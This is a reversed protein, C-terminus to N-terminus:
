NNSNNEYVIERLKNVDHIVSLTDMSLAIFNYKKYKNYQESINKVIHYGLKDSPVIKEINNIMKNYVLNDFNGVDGVSASLDYPGVMYYDFIKSKEIEKLNRVGTVTEIQAVIIPHIKGLLENNEGWNNEKVLGQGRRGKPPYFCLDKIQIAQDLNEITSFIIGNAGFDLYKRINNDIDSVRVFCFKDALSCKSICNYISEINFCGHELDLVIGDFKSNCYIDTITSNPIQQWLLRFNM